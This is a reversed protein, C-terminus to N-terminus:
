KLKPDWAVREREMMASIAIDSWGEAFILTVRRTSSRSQMSDKSHRFCVSSEHERQLPKRPQSAVQPNCCVKSAEPGRRLM